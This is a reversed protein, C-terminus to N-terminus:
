YEAFATQYIMRYNEDALVDDDPARDAGAFPDEGALWQREADANSFAIDLSSNLEVQTHVLGAHKLAGALALRYGRGLLINPAPSIIEEDSLLYFVRACVSADMAVLSRCVTPRVDYISCAGDKLNPCPYVLKAREASSMGGTVSVADLFTAQAQERAAGTFSKAVHLVEVRSADVWIRCCHACGRHCAVPIDSLFAKDAKDINSQFFEMLPTVSQQAKSVDVLDRLVRMLAAVQRGDPVRVNLGGAVHARDQALQREYQDPEM